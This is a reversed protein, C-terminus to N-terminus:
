DYTITKKIGAYRVTDSTVSDSSMIIDLTKEKEKVIQVFRDLMKIISDNEEETMKLYTDPPFQFNIKAIKDEFGETMRKFSTSDTANRISDTYIRILSISKSFLQRAMAHSNDDKNGHCSCMTIAMTFISVLLSTRRIKLIKM